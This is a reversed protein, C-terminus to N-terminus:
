PSTGDLMVSSAMNPSIWAYWLDWDSRTKDLFYFTSNDIAEVVGNFDKSAQCWGVGQNGKQLSTKGELDFCAGCLSWGSAVYAPNLNAELRIFARREEGFYALNSQSTTDAVWTGQGNLVKIYM